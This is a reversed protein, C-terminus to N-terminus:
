SIAYEAFTPENENFASLWEVLAPWNARWDVQKRFDLYELACALAIAVLHDGQAPPLNAAMTDLGRTMKGKQLTLWYDSVQEPEHFRKECVYLVAADMIGDVLAMRTQEVWRTEENEVFPSEVGQSKALSQLYAVIVRSDYLVDGNDLLMAPIKGLPNQDRLSDKEDNTDAMELQIRGDLGLKRAVFLVKRVFPSTSSGRLIM